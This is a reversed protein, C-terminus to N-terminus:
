PDGTIMVPVSTAGHGTRVSIFYLGAPFSDIPFRKEVAGEMREDLLERVVVGRMDVLDIDLDAPRGLSLSLHLAGDAVDYRANLSQPLDPNERVAAGLEVNSTWVNMGTAAVIRDGSIALENIDAAPGTM